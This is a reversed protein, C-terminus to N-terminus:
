EGLIRRHTRAAELLAATPKPPNELLDLLSATDRLSLVIREHRDHPRKEKRAAAPTLREDRNAAPRPL